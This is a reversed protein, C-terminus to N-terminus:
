EDEGEERYKRSVTMFKGGVGRARRRNDEPGAMSYKYAVHKMATIEALAKKVQSHDPGLRIAEERGKLKLDWSLLTRLLVGIFRDRSADDLDDLHAGIALLSEVDSERDQTAAAGVRRRGARLQCLDDCYRADSRKGDLSKGCEGCYDDGDERYPREPVEAIEIDDMSGAGALARDGQLASTLAADIEKRAYTTLSAGSEHHRDWNPFVDRAALAAIHFLENRDFREPDRIQNLRLGVRTKLSSEEELIQKWGPDTERGAERSHNGERLGIYSHSDKLGDFTTRGASVDEYLDAMELGWVALIDDTECGTLCNVSAKRDNVTVRLSRKRDHHVPCFGSYPGRGTLQKGSSLYHADRVRELPTM